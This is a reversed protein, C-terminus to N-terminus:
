GRGGGHGVVPVGDGLDATLGVAPGGLALGDDTAFAGEVFGLAGAGYDAGLLFVGSAVGYAGGEM